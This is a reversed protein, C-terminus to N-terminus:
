AIGAKEFHKKNIKGAIFWGALAAVVTYAIIVPLIWAPTMAKLSNAYAEGMSDIVSTFYSNRMLWIPFFTGVPWIAFVLYGVMSMKKSTYGGTKTILDSVIGLVTCFVFMVWTNGTTFVMLLGILIGMITIMGFTKVKTIFLVYVPACIIAIFAPLLIYTIPAFSTIATFVFLIVFYIATFIGVNILDKASLKKSSKM